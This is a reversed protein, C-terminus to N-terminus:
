CCDGDIAKRCQGGNGRPQAMEEVEVGIRVRDRRMQTMIGDEGAAKGYV